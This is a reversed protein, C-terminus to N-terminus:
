TMFKWRHCSIYSYLTSTSCPIGVLLQFYKICKITKKVLCFDFSNKDFHLFIPTKEGFSYFYLIKNEPFFTKWIKEYSPPKQGNATKWLIEGLIKVEKWATKFVEAWGMMVGGAAIGTGKTLNKLGKRLYSKQDEKKLLAKNDEGVLDDDIKEKKAGKDREAQTFGKDLEKETDKLAQDVDEEIILDENADQLNQDQDAEYVDQDESNEPPPIKEAM